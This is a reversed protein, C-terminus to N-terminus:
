GATTSPCGEIETGVHTRRMLPGTVATTVVAVLALVTFGLQNVLGFQLGITAVVLETVGRCNMLVGLQAAQRGPLGALRAGGGAGAFKTVTAAVLVGAFLLWRGPDTGLLAVSTRLGVEALFLPVLITVAFGQLQEGIRRVPASDRPVATGFLFAGIVPHLGILQTLAAFGIAGVALMALLLQQSGVRRVLAALGPRVCLFTAAVVGATMGLTTAIQGTGTLGSTALILTLVTWAVGDGIAACSLSLAGIGTREIGLDVLIRALVPLATVSLALGFFLPTAMGHPRDTLASTTIAITLGAVFPLGMGGLVGAAVVRRGLIADPRFECGLLFMFVVLGLQAARDLEELVTPTFLWAHASPWLQGLASPGLLLGGFMEGLVPPQGWRRLLAGFLHCVFLILAVAFLFRALPDFERHTTTHFSAPVWLAAAGAVTVLGAVVRLRARVGARSSPSVAAGSV